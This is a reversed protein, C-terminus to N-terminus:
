KCFTQFINTMQAWEIDKEERELNKFKEMLQAESYLENCSQGFLEAFRLLINQVLM